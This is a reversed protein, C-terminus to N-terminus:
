GWVYDLAFGLGQGRFARILLGRWGKTGTRGAAAVLPLGVVVPPLAPGAVAAVEVVRLMRDAAEGVVRRDEAGLVGEAVGAWRVEAPGGVSDVVTAQGVGVAAALREM